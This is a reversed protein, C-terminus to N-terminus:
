AERAAPAEPTFKTVLEKEGALPFKIRAITNGGQTERIDIITGSGYLEHIIEEGPAYSDAMSYERIKSM